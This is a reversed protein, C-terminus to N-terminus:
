QRSRKGQKSLVRTLGAAAEPENPQVRLAEQYHTVAEAERGLGELTAGLARHVEASAGELRLTETYHALAEELRGRQRLTNALNYHANASQPDIQVAQRHEREADELRGMDALANGLNMHAEAYNPENRIADRYQGAAEAPRGMQLFVNGMNNRARASGPALRLAENFQAVAEDLRGLRELTAGLNNHTEVSDAPSELRLAEHYHEVAETLRGGRQLANGLNYHASAFDPHLHIAERYRQMAEDARGVDLLANGLDTRAEASDPDLRIAEDYQTIAQDPRGIKLLANGLNIRAQLYGPALQIAQRYEAIAEDIRGGDALLLGLNNHGNPFGRAIRSAEAFHAMAERSRGQRSLELGLGNHAYYNAPMVDLAHQWLAVSDKWTMVQARTTVTCAALVGCAVTGLLVQRGRARGALESAGWAIMVFLGILPVYTYRDAMAHSGVQVLGSVPLLTGVYWFWGVALYPRRPAMWVVVASVAALALLAGAAPWVSIVQPYPYFAMLGAPWFMKVIYALSSHLANAIRGSFPFSELAAVAGGSRQAVFAVAGSVAALALFPLKERVLPAWARWTRPSAGDDHAEGRFVTARRLPWWDLLLMAFPLTVLMPKAMLGLAFLGLAALYSVKTTGEGRRQREVYSAYCWLTLMMFFTSLVDKRESIWAVSEVHLPHVAFLAAVFASRGPAGTMRVLALFLVLVSALHLLANTVHPAGAGAGFLQVDLMLSLWTLPHWFNAHSTTFAWALGSWTLGALVQRNDTVYIHDDVSVFGHHRVAAFALVTVITLGAALLWSQRASPVIRVPRTKTRSTSM